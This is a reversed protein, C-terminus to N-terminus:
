AATNFQPINAIKGDPTCFNPMRSWFADDKDYLFVPLTDGVLRIQGNSARAQKVLWQASLAMDPKTMWYRGDITGSLTIATAESALASGGDAHMTTNERLWKLHEPTNLKLDDPMKSKAKISCDAGLVTITEFGMFQAVDIARTVANLGSGARITTPYLLAYLWDEYAMTEPVGKANDWRVPPKKIGVYNHFFRYPLGKSTLLDVLHPHVTSALLYEVDPTTRWENLMHPTQDVTFGHTPKHGNEYLWTLASNCGWIQDAKPCYESANEVLSPGAGCLVLHQGKGSGEVVTYHERAFPEVTDHFKRSEGFAASPRYREFERVLRRYHKPSMTAEMEVVARVQWAISNSVIFTSYNETMPSHLQIQQGESM